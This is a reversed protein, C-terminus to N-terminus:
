RGGLFLEPQNRSACFSRSQSAISDRTVEPPCSECDLHLRQRRACRCDGSQRPDAVLFNFQVDPTNESHDVWWFAGGEFGNSTVPGTGFLAFQLAAVAKWNLKKYKDYSHAGTLEYIMFIDPHDQLNRGIAPLDRVVDIGSQRLCDGPGIGSLMLLHPTGIAGAALIVERRAKIIAALGVTGLKSAM